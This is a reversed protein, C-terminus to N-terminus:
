LSEYLRLLSQNIKERDFHREVYARGRKGLQIREEPREILDRLREKVDEITTNVIPCDPFHERKVADILYGIVPKGFYMAEVALTGFGGLLLQDIVIDADDRLIRLMEVHDLNEIRRYRFLMGARELERVAEEVYRTGKIGSESPAHVVLPPTKTQYSPQCGDIEITNHVWIDRVVTREPFVTIVSAHLNRPAIVKHVWLRHWRMMRRKRSDYKPHDLSITLLKWFPNRRAEIEILRAESGCYTMIIKKGFLRLVPLDLNFPLLSIGYYFHFIRYRALSFFFLALRLFYGTLRRRDGLKLNIHAPDVIASDGFSYFDSVHGHARQWDALHRGIGAINAPGHFIRQKM